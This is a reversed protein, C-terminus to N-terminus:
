GRAAQQLFHQLQANTPLGRCAGASAEDPTGALVPSTAFWVGAILSMLRYLIRQM